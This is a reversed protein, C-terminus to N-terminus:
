NKVRIKNESIYGEINLYGLNIEKLPFLNFSGLSNSKQPASNNKNFKELVWNQDTSLHFNDTSSILLKFEGVNNSNLTPLLSIKQVLSFIFSKLQNILLFSNFNESSAENDFEISQANNQLQEFLLSNKFSLGFTFAVNDGEYIEMFLRMISGDEMQKNLKEIFQNLYEIVAPHRSSYIELGYFSYLKFSEKPYIELHYWIQEILARIFTALDNLTEQLHGIQNDM